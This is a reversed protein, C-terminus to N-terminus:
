KREKKKNEKKKDRSRKFIFVIENIYWFISKLASIPFEVELGDREKEALKVM